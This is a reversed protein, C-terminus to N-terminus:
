LDRIRTRRLPSPAALELTRLRCGELPGRDDIPRGIGDLVRGLLGPGSPVQVGHGRNVVQMNPHVQDGNEYLFLYALDNSFGVVEALCTAARGTLIECRDNVAAPLKCTLMLGRASIVKGGVRPPDYSALATQWRKRIDTFSADMM